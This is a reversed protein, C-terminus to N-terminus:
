SDLLPAFADVMLKPGLVNTKLILDSSNSGAIGANNVVGYLKQGNM